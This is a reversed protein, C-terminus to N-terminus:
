GQIAVSMRPSYGASHTAKGSPLGIKEDFGVIEISTACTRSSAAQSYTPQEIALTQRALRQPPGLERWMEAM